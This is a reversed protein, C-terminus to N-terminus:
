PTGGKVGRDIVTRVLAEFEPVPMARRRPDGPTVPGPWATVGPIAPPDITERGARRDMRVRYLGMGLRVPRLANDAGRSLFFVAHDGKAFTPAGVVITRYRGVQGGPVRVFVFGAADGKLVNEVAVTAVTEVNVGPAAIARVDTVRGRVIVTSTSVLERFAAPVVVSARLTATACALAVICVLARIM